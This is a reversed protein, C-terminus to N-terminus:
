PTGFGGTMLFFAVLRIVATAGATVWLRRGSLWGALAGALACAASVAIFGQLNFVNLVLWFLGSLGYSVAAALLLHRLVNM